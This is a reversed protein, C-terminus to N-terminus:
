DSGAKPSTGPAVSSPPRTASALSVNAFACGTFDTGRTPRLSAQGQPLPLFYLFQQPFYAWDASLQSSLPLVPFRTPRREASGKSHPLRAVAQGNEWTTLPTTVRQSSSPGRWSVQSRQRRAPSNRRKEGDESVQRRSAPAGLPNAPKAKAFQACKVNQLQGGFALGSPPSPVAWRDM